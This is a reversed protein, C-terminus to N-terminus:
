DRKRERAYCYSVRRRIRPFTLQSQARFRGTTSLVSLWEQRSPNSLQFMRSKQGIRTMSSMVPRSGSSHGRLVSSMMKKTTLAIIVKIESIVIISDITLREHEDHTQGSRMCSGVRQHDNEKSPTCSM